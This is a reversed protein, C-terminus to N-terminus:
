AAPTRGAAQDMVSVAAAFREQKEAKSPRPAKPEAAKRAKEEEAVRKAEAADAKAQVAAQEEADHQNLMDPAIKALAHRLWDIANNLEDCTIANRTASGKATAKAKILTDLLYDEGTKDVPEKVEQTMLGRLEADSLLPALGTHKVGSKKGAEVAAKQKSLQARAVDVLVSYTSGPKIGKKVEADGNAARLLEIHMNRAKRVLDLADSEYKGGLIVFQRLKSLQQEISKAPAMGMAAEDSVEGADEYTSAKTVGAKFRDYIDPVQEVTIAGDQAAETVVEALAIMSTKGGGHLEGLKQVKSKLANYQSKPSVARPQNSGNTQAQAHATPRTPMPAVGAAEQDKIDQEADAEGPDAEAEGDMDAAIQEAAGPAFGGIAENMPNGEPNDEPENGTNALKPRKVM